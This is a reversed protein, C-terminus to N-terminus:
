EVLLTRLQAHATPDMGLGDALYSDISGFQEDIAVLAANLYRADASMVAEVAVASADRGFLDVKCRQYNSIVYDEVVVALPVGVAMLTIAAAVGTRDKGSACHLVLPTSKEALLAAFYERYRALHDLALSRYQRFMAAHAQEATMGGANIADVMPQNGSPMFGAPCVVIGEPLHDPARQREEDTRLDVVMRIELDVLRACDAESLFALSDARYVVGRRTWRGDNTPLGGLDRVNCAGDLLVQRHRHAALLGDKEQM